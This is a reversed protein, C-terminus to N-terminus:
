AHSSKDMSHRIPEFKRVACLLIMAMIRCVKLITRCIFITYYVFTNERSKLDNRHRWLLCSPTEFWWGWRQKSLRKNPHLDFYVDFSRTVPKQATFEGPVPSNRACIALLASFTEMQHRWWLTLILKRSKKYRLPGPFSPTGDMRTWTMCALSIVSTLTFDDNWQSPLAAISGDPMALNRRSGDLIVHNQEFRTLSFEKFFSSQCPDNQTHAKTYAGLWHCVVNCHLTTEWQSSANVFRSRDLSWPM